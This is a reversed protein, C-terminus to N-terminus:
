SGRDTPVLVRIHRMANPVDSAQEYNDGIWHYLRQSYAEGFLAEEDRPIYISSGMPFLFIVSPRRASLVQVEAEGRKGDILTAYIYDLYRSSPKRNTLFYYMTNGPILLIPDGPRSRGRIEDLVIETEALRDAPIHVTGRETVLPVSSQLLRVNTELFHYVVFCATFVVALALSWGRGGAWRELRPVIIEFLLHLYVLLIPIFYLLAYYRVDPNPLVRWGFLIVASALLLM